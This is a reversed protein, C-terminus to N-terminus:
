QEASPASRDSVDRSAVEHLCKALDEAAEPTVLIDQTIRDAAGGDPETPDVTDLHCLVLTSSTVGEQQSVRTTEASQVGFDRLQRLEHAQEGDHKTM